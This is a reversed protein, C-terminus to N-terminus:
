GLYHAGDSIHGSDTLTCIPHGAFMQILPIARHDDTKRTLESNEFLKMYTDRMSLKCMWLKNYGVAFPLLTPNTSLYSLTGQIVGIWGEHMIDDVLVIGENHIWKEALKLDNIVHSITHGGDVSVYKLTGNAILGMDLLRSDTSDAEIIVTNEGGYLDFAMLNNTFIKKNGQGSFDINRSQKDFVDIAFSKHDASTVTRNLLIYLRGCHVGIEAVGRGEKNYPSSEILDIAWAVHRKCFGYVHHFGNNVYWEIHPNNLKSSIEVDRM